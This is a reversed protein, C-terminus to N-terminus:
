WRGKELRARRRCGNRLSPACRRSRRHRIAALALRRKQGESLTFPHRNDLGLLGFQGLATAIRAARADGALAKPLMADVEDRVSGTAFQDEPYQLAIAGPAGLRKGGKLRLLGALSAGLTSKGAGNRGVLVTITGATVAFDLARLRCSAVPM